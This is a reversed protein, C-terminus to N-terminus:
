VLKTAREVTKESRLCDDVYVNRRIAEVAFPYVTKNDAATKRLAYNCCSPSSVAGFLHVVKIEGNLNGEPWWLFRLYNWQEKPVFVQHFMAEIDAMFAIPERRFRTLVGILSNMLDPGQLLLKNLSTGSYDASCDFVIRIKEPKKPHYIGHHPIYWVKGPVPPVENDPIKQAYGKRIIKNGLTM